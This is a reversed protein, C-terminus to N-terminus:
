AISEASIFAALQCRQAYDAPAETEAIIIARPTCAREFATADRVFFIARETTQWQCYSEGCAEPPALRETEAPTLGLMAGLRERAYSSRGSGALLTWRDPERVYIARLDADFAAVPQPTAIYLAVSALFIPVGFWRLAGRWL